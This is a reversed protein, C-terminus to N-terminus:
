RPQSGRPPALVVLVCEAQTVAISPTAVLSSAVNEQKAYTLIADTPDAGRWVSYALTEGLRTGAFTWTCNPLALDASTLKRKWVTTCLTTSTAQRNAQTFSQESSITDNTGGRLMICFVM